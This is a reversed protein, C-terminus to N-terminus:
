AGCSLAYGGIASVIVNLDDLHFPRSKLRFPRVADELIINVHLEYAVSHLLQRPFVMQDLLCVRM